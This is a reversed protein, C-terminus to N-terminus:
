LAKIDSNLYRTFRIGYGNDQIEDGEEVCHWNDLSDLNPAFVDANGIANVKTVYCEDCYPLLESYVKAGGIVYVNDYQKVTEMLESITKVVKFGDVYDLRSSLIINVRGPLPKKNPLSMYTGYGMVVASGMTKEKFFKMDKPIYFMLGGETGIGWRNDCHFIAKM